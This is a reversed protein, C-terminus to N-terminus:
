LTETNIKHKIFDYIKKVLDEPLRDLRIRSGDPFSIIKKPDYRKVMKMIEDKDSKSIHIVEDKIFEYYSDM